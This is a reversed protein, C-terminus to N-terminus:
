TSIDNLVRPTAMQAAALQLKHDTTQMQLQVLEQRTKAASNVAQNFQSVRSIRDAEPKAVFVDHLSAFTLVLGLLLASTSASTTIAKLLTKNGESELKEVRAQLGAVLLLLLPDADVEPTVPSMEEM